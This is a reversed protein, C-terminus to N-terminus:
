GSLLPGTGTADPIHRAFGRSCLLTNLATKDDCLNVAATGPLPLPNRRRLLDDAAAALLAETSVPVVLDYDGGGPPIPGFSVTHRTHHFSRQISSKVEPWPSFLIKRGGPLICRDLANQGLMFLRDRWKRISKLNNISLIM